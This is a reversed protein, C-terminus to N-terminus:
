RARWLQEVEADTGTRLTEFRFELESYGLYLEALIEMADDMSLDGSAVCDNTTRIAGDRQRLEVAAKMMEEERWERRDERQRVSEDARHHHRRGKGSEQHLSEGYLAAWTLGMATLIDETSCGAHCHVIWKEGDWKGCFSPHRDGHAHLPGPCSATFDDGHERYNPLHAFPNFTASM